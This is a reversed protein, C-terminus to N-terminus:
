TVPLAVTYFPLALAGVQKYSSSSDSVLRISSILPLHATRRIALLEPMDLRLMKRFGLLRQVSDNYVLVVEVIKFPCACPM